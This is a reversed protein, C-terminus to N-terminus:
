GTRSNLRALQIMVKCDTEAQQTVESGGESDHSTRGLRDVM